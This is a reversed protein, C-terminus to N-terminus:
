TSVTVNYRTQLPMPPNEYLMVLFVFQAMQKNFSDPEKFLGHKKELIEIIIQILFIKSIRKCFFNFLASTMM